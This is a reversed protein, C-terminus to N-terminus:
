HIKQKAYDAKRKLIVHINDLGLQRSIESVKRVQSPPIGEVFKDCYLFELFKIFTSKSSVGKLFITQGNKSFYVSRFFESVASSQM